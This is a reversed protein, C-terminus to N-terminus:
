NKWHSKWPRGESMLKHASAPLLKVLQQLAQSAGMVSRMELWHGLLMIDVLTVLELFFIEGKLGFVVASSYIYATTIAVAVLTMMGPMRSKLENYMGKFFPYGGYFYVISSLFLLAYSDGYFGLLERIGLLNQIHPTLFIIPITLVLCIWFRRKFDAIMHHHDHGGPKKKMEHDMEHDSRSHEM